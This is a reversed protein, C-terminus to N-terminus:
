WLAVLLISSQGLAPAATEGRRATSADERTVTLDHAQEVEGTVLLLLQDGPGIRYEDPVPGSLLPQFQSSARRFMAHGFVKSSDAESFTVSRRSQMGTRPAVFELGDATEVALGLVQLGEVAEPTFASGIDISDGALFADLAGPPLGRASLEARIEALSLGSRMIQARVLEPDEMLMRQLDPSIPLQASVAAPVATLFFAM